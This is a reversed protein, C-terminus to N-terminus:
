GKDPTLLGEGKAIRIARAQEPGSLVFFHADVRKQDQESRSVNYVRLAKLYAEVYEDM